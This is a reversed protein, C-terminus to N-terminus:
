DGNWKRVGSRGSFSRPDALNPGLVELRVGGVPGLAPGTVGAINYCPWPGESLSGRNPTWPSGSCFLAGLWLQDVAPDALLM